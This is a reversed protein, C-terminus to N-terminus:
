WALRSGTTACAPKATALMVPALRNGGGGDGTALYLAEPRTEVGPLAHLAAAQYLAYIENAESQTPKGPAHPTHRDPRCHGHAGLREQGRAGPAGRSRRGT